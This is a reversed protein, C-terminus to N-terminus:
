SFIIPPPPPLVRIAHGFAVVLTLTSPMQRYYDGRLVLDLSLKQSVPQMLSTGKDMIIITCALHICHGLQLTRTLPVGSWGHGLAISFPCAVRSYLCRFATTVVCAEDTQAYM